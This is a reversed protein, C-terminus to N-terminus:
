GSGMHADPAVSRTARYFNPVDWKTELPQLLNKRSRALVALRADARGRLSM